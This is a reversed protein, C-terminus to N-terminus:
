LAQIWKLAEGSLVRPYTELDSVAGGTGLSIIEGQTQTTFTSVASYIASQGAGGSGTRWRLLRATSGDMVCMLRDGSQVLGTSARQSPTGAVVEILNFLGASTVELMWKNNADQRRIDVLVSGASPLTTLVFECWFANPEHTFLDGIDRAGVLRTTWIGYDDLWDGGLKGIRFYDVGPTHRDFSLQGVEPYMTADNLQKHVFAIKEGIVTIAGASRLIHTFTYFTDAVAPDIGTPTSVSGDAFAFSGLPFAQSGSVNTPSVQNPSWGMIPSAIELPGVGTPNQRTRHKLALGTARAYGSHVYVIPITDGSSASAIPEAVGEDIEWQTDASQALNVTGPGPEANRPSSIPAAQDTVFEDDLWYLSFSRTASWAGIRPTSVRVRAFHQGDTPDLGSLDFSTTAVADDSDVISSFGPDTAIQVEYTAAGDVADWAMLLQAANLFQMETPATITPAIRMAHEALLWRRQRSRRTMLGAM